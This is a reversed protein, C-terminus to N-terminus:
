KCKITVDKKLESQNTKVKPNTMNILDYSFYYILAIIIIYSIVSLILGYISYFMNKNYLTLTIPHPYKNLSNFIREM